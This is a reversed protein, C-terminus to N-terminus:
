KKSCTAKYSDALSTNKAYTAIVYGECAVAASLQNISKIREIEALAENYKAIIFYTRYRIRLVELTPTNALLWSNSLSITSLFRKATYAAEIDAYIVTTAGTPAIVTTGSATTPVVPTVNRPDAIWTRKVGPFINKGTKTAYYGTTSNYEFFGILKRAYTTKDFQYLIKADYIGTGSVSGTYVIDVFVHDLAGTAVFEYGGIRAGKPMAYAQVIKDWESIIRKIFGAYTIGYNKEIGVYSVEGSTTVPVVPPAVLAVSGTSSASPVSITSNGNNIVTQIAGSFLALPIKINAKRMEERLISNEAELSKVRSGYQDLLAKAQVIPDLDAAVVSTLSSVLILAVFIIKRM